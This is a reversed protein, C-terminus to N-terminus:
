EICDANRTDFKNKRWTNNDCNLNDDNLDFFQLGDGNGFAKSRAILNDTGSVTIGSRKNDEAVNGLLRNNTALRVNFGYGANDTAINRRLENEKSWDIEFGSGAEWQTDIAENKILKNADGQVLFGEAYQSEAVNHILWNNEGSPGIWFGVGPGDFAYNHILLNGDGDIEFCGDCATASNRVLQNNDTGVAIAVHTGPFSHVYEIRSVLHGGEGDLVVGGDCNLITGNAVSAKKGELQIGIQPLSPNCTLTHGKLNLHTWSLVTLAPSVNCDLDDKLMYTGGPGLVDGCQVNKFYVNGSWCYALNASGLVCIFIGLLVLMKLFNSIAFKKMKCGGFTKKLIKQTIDNSIIFRKKMIIFFGRIPYLDRESARVDADEPL